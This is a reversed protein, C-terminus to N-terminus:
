AAQPESIKRKAREIELDYYYDPLLQELFDLYTIISNRTGTDDLSRSELALQLVRIMSKPVLALIEPTDRVEISIRGDTTMAIM